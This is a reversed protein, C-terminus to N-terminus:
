TATDEDGAEAEMAALLDEEVAETAKAEVKPV